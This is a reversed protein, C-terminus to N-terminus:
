TQIRTTMFRRGEEVKERGLPRMTEAEIGGMAHFREEMIDQTAEALHEHGVM